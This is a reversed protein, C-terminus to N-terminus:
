EYQIFEQKKNYQSNPNQYKGLVMLGTAIAEVEEGDFYIHDNDATVEKDTEPLVYYRYEGDSFGDPFVFSEVHYYIKSDEQDTMGTAFYRKDTTNQIVLTYNKM